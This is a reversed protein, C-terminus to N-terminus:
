GAGYDDSAAVAIVNNWFTAQLLDYAGILAKDYEEASKFFAAADPGVPDVEVFDDCSPFAVLLTLLLYKLTKLKRM